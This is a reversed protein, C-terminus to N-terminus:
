QEHTSYCNIVGNHIDKIKKKFPFMYAIEMSNYPFHTDGEVDFTFETLYLCDCRPVFRDYIEAGGCVIADKPIDRESFIYTVEYNDSDTIGIKMELPQPPRRVITKISQYTINKYVWRFNEIDRTLVWVHRGILPPLSEFTRRGVLINSFMTFEKFWKLDDSQKPWPLKDSRGIVGNRSVSAIAIM